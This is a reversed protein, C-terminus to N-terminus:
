VLNDRLGVRAGVTQLELWLTRQAKDTLVTANLLSSYARTKPPGWSQPSNPVCLLQSHTGGILHPTPLPSTSTPHPKDMLLGLRPIQIVERINKFNHGGDDSWHVACGHLAWSASLRGSHLARCTGTLVRTTDGPSGWGEYLRSQGKKRGDRVGAFLGEESHWVARSILGGVM